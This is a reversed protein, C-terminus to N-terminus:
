SFYLEQFSRPLNYNNQSCVETSILAPFRDGDFWIGSLTLYTLFRLVSVAEGIHPQKTHFVQQCERLVKELTYDAPKSELFGSRNQTPDNGSECRGSQNRERTQLHQEFNDRFRTISWLPILFIQRRSKKDDHCPLFSMIKTKTKHQKFAHFRNSFSRVSHYAFM